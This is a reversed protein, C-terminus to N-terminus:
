AKEAVKEPEPAPKRALVYYITVISVLGFGGLMMALYNM